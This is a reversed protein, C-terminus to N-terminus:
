SHPTLRIWEPTGGHREDDVIDVRQERDSRNREFNELEDGLNSVVQCQENARSEDQSTAPQDASSIMEGSPSLSGGVYGSGLM